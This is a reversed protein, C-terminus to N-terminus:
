LSYTAIVQEPTMIPIGLQKAEAVKVNDEALDKVILLATKKNVSSGQESGLQLLKEILAKDRFGTMVWKKGYLPHNPNAITLPSAQPPAVAPLTLKSTLQATELFALFDPIEKVFQAATKKAMGNVTSIKDIKVGPASTDTLVTPYAELILTLKKTGFGRGFINSAHMLEPLSAKAIQQQINTYIKQALKTKFGEVKLFDAEQMALIKAVTDFGAEILRKINGPGLGDVDLNTFFGSITKEKVTADTSKDTLMIDVHTANWEYPFTPLLPQAAPQIVATIHPIVDGSRILQILAGIGIRQEVIFKANFGTAYEITVGGLTIPEIQVRPKLYGDKSPTWLVDVVKAEAVQDSLVMKFAFAHDPNGSTRPYLKDDICIVGDIEYAYDARWQILIESLRENTLDASAVPLHKVVEITQEKTLLAFQDSPKLVPKIVEYAVFSMDHYKDPEPTKKNIVGAVFNRPNAFEQAYKAQFVAKKIILEGRIVLGPTTPLQLYPILHSIDQGVRGDGRTFLKPTKHETTYLASVGDLKCSLIYPGSYTQKWKLLAATNPKIKDMSWMEYPLTVKNKEVKAACTTHGESAAKNKPYHALVYDILIDYENDTMIPSNNCYYADNAERILKSLIKETFSVLAPRGEQKFQVLPNSPSLPKKKLTTQKTKLPAPAPAPPAQQVPQAAAPVQPPVQPVSFQVARGDIRENPQKYLMGLYAFIDQENTFTADVPAGKKGNVMKNLGHENLTYGLDVARQRQVTNFTKSGTFYLLAFAYENPPTYLFDVRRPIKGPLQAITLSKTQGRSLIEILIKETILQDLFATFAATNNQKNTIIVDIDGSTLAGRRYSGVIEFSSGAPTAKAFATAFVRKYDDIESRPIRTEIAEYYKLGIKQSANLADEHTRLEAITKIGKDVLEKAKKPGIGYVRTFLNLPNARERELLKLTGTAIYEALKAEITKGIGKLGKVQDLTTLDGPYNMITEQAQQYAKARFPEGQRQMIDALEGLMDLFAENLRGPAALAAPVPVATVAPTATAASLPMVINSDLTKLGIDETFIFKKKTLKPTPKPTPKPKPKPMKLTTKVQQKKKNPSKLKIKLTTKQPFEEVFIFKKKTKKVPKIVALM